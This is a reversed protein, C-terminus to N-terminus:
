ECINSLNWIKIQNWLIIACILTCNLLPLSKKGKMTWYNLRINQNIFFKAFFHEVSARCKKHEYMFKSDLLKYQYSTQKPMAAFQKKNFGYYANDGLCYYMDNLINDFNIGFNSEKLVTIDHKCAPNGVNVANIMGFIRDIVFLHSWAARWHYKWSRKNKDNRGVTLKHTGDLYLLADIMTENKNRLIEKMLHQMKITPSNIIGDDNKYTLLIAVNVDNVYNMVTQQCICWNQCFEGLTSTSHLFNIWMLLKNMKKIPTDKIKIFQKKVENYFRKIDEPKFSGYRTQWSRANCKQQTMHLKYFNITCMSDNMTWKRSTENKNINHENADNRSRYKEFPIRKKSKYTNHVKVLAVGLLIKQM